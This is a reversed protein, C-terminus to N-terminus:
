RVVVRDEGAHSFREGLEQMVLRLRQDLQRRRLAHYQLDGLPLAAASARSSTPITPQANIKALSSKGCEVRRASRPSKSRIADGDAPPDFTPSRHVIARASSRCKDQADRVYTDPKWVKQTRMNIYLESRADSGGARSAPFNARRNDRVSDQPVGKTKRTCWAKFQDRLEDPHEIPPSSLICMIQAAISPMSFIWNRIRCHTTISKWVRREDDDASLATPRRANSGTEAPRLQFGHRFQVWGREDGPLWAGYTPWTLFYALPEPLVESRDAM